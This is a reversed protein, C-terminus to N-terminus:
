NSRCAGPRQVFAAGNRQPRSGRCTSGGFDPQYPRAPDKATDVQRHRERRGAGADVPVTLEDLATVRPYRKTLYETAIVPV